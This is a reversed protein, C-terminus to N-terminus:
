NKFVLLIPCSRLVPSYIALTLEFPFRISKSFLRVDAILPELRTLSKLSLLSSLITCLLKFCSCSFFIYSSISVILFGLLPRSLPSPLPQLEGLEDRVCFLEHAFFGIISTFFPAFGSVKM